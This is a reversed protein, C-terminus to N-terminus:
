GSGASRGAQTVDQPDDRGLEVPRQRVDDGQDDEDRRDASADRRRRDALRVHAFRPRSRLILWASRLASPRDEVELLAAALDRDEVVRADGCIRRVDRRIAITPADGSGPRGDYPTM